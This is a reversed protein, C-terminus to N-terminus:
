IIVDEPTENIWKALQEVAETCNSTSMNIDVYGFVICFNCDYLAIIGSSNKGVIENKSKQTIMFIQDAFALGNNIKSSPIKFVEAFHKFEEVQPCFGPTSAWIGANKDFIAGATVKESLKDIMQELM